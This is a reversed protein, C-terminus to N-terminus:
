FKLNVNVGMTKTIPMGTFELGQANGNNYTSEPDINPTYKKITWFNRAVLSVTIAKFPTNAFRRAPIQYDLTITRLKIFDSKYVFPEGFNYLNQYYSEAQVVATNPTHGDSQVGSAVVGTERGPLTEKALGYRFALGQTGSYIVGGFKADILFSLNFSKYRFSNTFGTTVPSVGTGVDKLNAAKIPNGTADYEVQGAGNRQYAVVQLEDYPKGIEQAIYATQSRANDATIQTLSGFLAVVNSKNYGLNFSPEWTLGQGSGVRYSLLLEVGKNTIKGVNFVAATYGSAPSVTAQVIDKTTVRNYVTFDIGLRNNIARGEIGVEDTTSRLPVLKSNPVTSPGLQALPAGNNAGALGYSLALQYPDTDGGVQAWSARVKAYNIAAPLRVADSLVFSLGVSPYFIANKYSGKYTPDPTLSSFWDNRGTLNLFLYNNFSLDASGYFSNIRKEIDGHSASLSSPNVNSVDYFYPINFPGGGINDRIISQKMANGGAIADLGFHEGLKKDVGFIFGVNSENFDLNQRTYGGGLQYGAGTPTIDTNDYQYKDFGVLGKVYFWDTIQFKPQFSTILRTKNDDRVYNYAAYYPNQVYQNNSWVFENGQPTLVNEKLTEVSLSTPLTWMTYAANGPSDSLRPRNHTKEAIYMVNALFTLRKSMNGILNISANDRRLTSNPMVSKNNLDSLSFRYIIKDGGGAMAVSNTLTSGTKYFKSLNDTVASYPRTKGDFQVAPSGDLKAGFSNTQFNANTNPPTPKVGQLQGNPADGIGYVYQYDDFKKYLLTEAVSNSNIELGIADGKNKAGSKTTVLIAGNSARSGYLAAATGGKLVSISEIEDPNLSSIGDGQDTGGWMGVASMGASNGNVLNTLNNNNMPIGDVVILPQNDGSLSGNGRIIIRSSGGPGTATSAINLGAVKGELSNAVNVSRAETLDSGKVETVSASIAKKEKKIGLATVVVEDLDRTQRVLAISLSTGDAVIIEQTRFGIHSVVLTTGKQASISFAGNDDSTIAKKAGKIAVVAGQVGAGTEDKILGTVTVTQSQAFHFSLMALCLLRAFLLKRRM